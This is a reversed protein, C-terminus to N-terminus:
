HVTSIADRIALLAEDLSAAHHHGLEMQSLDTGGDCITAEIGVFYRGDATPSVQIAFFEVSFPARTHPAVLGAAIPTQEIM